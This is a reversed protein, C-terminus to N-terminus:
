FFLERLELFEWAETNQLFGRLKESIINEDRFKKM